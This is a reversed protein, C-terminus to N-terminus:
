AFSMSGLVHGDDSVEGDVEDSGGLVDQAVMAEASVTPTV